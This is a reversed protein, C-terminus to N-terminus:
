CLRSYLFSECWNLRFCQKRRFRIELLFHWKFQTLCKSWTENFLSLVCVINTVDNEVVLTIWHLTFRLLLENLTYAKTTDPDPVLVLTPILANRGFISMSLSYKQIKIYEWHFLVPAVRGIDIVIMRDESEKVGSRGPFAATGTRESLATTVMAPVLGGCPERQSQGLSFVITPGTHVTRKM